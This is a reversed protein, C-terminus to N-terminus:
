VPWIAGIFCMCILVILVYWHLFVLLLFWYAHFFLFSGRDVLKYFLILIFRRCILVEFLPWHGESLLYHQWITCQHIASENYGRYFATTECSCSWCLWSPSTQRHSTRSLLRMRTTGWTTLPLLTDTKYSRHSLSCTYSGRQACIQLCLAIRRFFTQYFLTQWTCHQELFNAM